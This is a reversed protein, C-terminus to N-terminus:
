HLDENDANREARSWQFLRSKNVVNAEFEPEIANLIAKLRQSASQGATENWRCKWLVFRVGNQKGASSWQLPQGNSDNLDIVDWGVFWNALAMMEGSRSIAVTRICMSDIPEASCDLSINTTTKQKNKKSFWKFIKINRENWHCRPRILRIWSRTARYSKGSKPIVTLNKFKSRCLYRERLWCGILM